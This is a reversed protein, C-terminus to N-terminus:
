VTLKHLQPKYASLSECIHTRAQRPCVLPLPHAMLLRVLPPLLPPQLWPLTPSNPASLGPCDAFPCLQCTILQKPNGEVHGTGVWHRTRTRWDCEFPPLGLSNSGFCSFFSLVSWHESTSFSPQSTPSARATPSNPKPHSHGPRSWHNQSSFFPKHM